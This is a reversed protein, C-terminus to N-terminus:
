KIMLVPLQRLSAIARAVDDSLTGHAAVLLRARIGDLARAFARPDSLAHRDIRVRRAKLAVDVTRGDIAVIVLEEGSRAAIAAAAEIIKEDGAAAVVAVPGETRQPHPPAFMVSTASQLVAESFSLFQQTAREAASAPEALMLIDGPRSLSAITEMADGRITAFRHETGLLRAAEAFLRETRRAALELEQALRGPELPQWGGGLLRLERAFPLSTLQRLHTDEVFLGLLELDLLNAFAVGFKLAHGPPNMQLGIVLRKFSHAPAPM